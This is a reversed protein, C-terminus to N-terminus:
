SIDRTNLRMFGLWMLVWLERSYNRVMPWACFLQSTPFPAHLFFVIRAKRSQHRDVRFPESTALLSPLLM